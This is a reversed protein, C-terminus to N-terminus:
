VPISFYFTTGTGVESSVGIVGGHAEILGKSIVLGLGTGGHQEGFKLQKFKSFLEPLSEKAIGPGSDSVAVVVSDGINSLKEYLTRDIFGETFKSETPIDGGAKHAFAKITVTGGRSTFKLANSILNNLVEALRKQDVLIMSPLKPDFLTTLTVGADTAVKSYLQVREQIVARIDAPQKVIEFKGAEMKAVDLLGSVLEIMRASDKEILDLHEKYQEEKLFGGKEEMYEAVSKIGVLPSRLEHVMMATFDDRLKELEKDHTIDRFIVAAGLTENKKIGASSKVPVVSINFFKDNVFVEPVEIIKDLKVAEELRGRIDFKGELHDIFDFITIDETKTIGVAKLITPNAVLIRYDTDTMVVGETMSAVMANLKRQETQVVERLHTVTRSAQQTIKYLVTMEAEKYLGAQTSAVTLIGVVKDGIILPINFYSSMPEEVAEIVIAGSVVETLQDSRFEQNLIASLAGLMRSRVDAIFRESVSKELHIKFLIKEPGLLMYSVTSYDILQHLSGTIIDVINQVDLSYGIREGLEKLIALEYMRRDTEKERLLVVTKGQKKQIFFVVCLAVAAITAGALVFILVPSFIM